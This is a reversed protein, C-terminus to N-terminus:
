LLTMAGTIADIRDARDPGIALATVTPVGHFETRGSDTIVRVKLGATLAEDRVREFEEISDSRVTIKAMGHRMWAIEEDSLTHTGGDVIALLQERMFEASAHAGQSVSKGRRTKLDHRIVIVQKLRDKPPEDNGSRPPATM